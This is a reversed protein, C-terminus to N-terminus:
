QNWKLFGNFQNLSEPKHHDYKFFSTNNEGVNTYGFFYLLDEGEDKMFSIIEDNYYKDNKGYGGGSRPKYSVSADKNNTIVDNIRQEIVTDQLSELGLTYKFM